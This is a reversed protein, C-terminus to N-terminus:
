LKSAILLTTSVIGLTLAIIGAVRKYKKYLYKSAKIPEEIKDLRASNAAVVVRNGIVGEKHERLDEEIRETRADMSVQWKISEERHERSNNAHDKQDGSMQRLMELLVDNDSM